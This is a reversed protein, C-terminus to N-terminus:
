NSHVSRSSEALNPEAVCAKRHHKLSDATLKMPQQLELRLDHLRVAHLAAERRLSRCGLGNEM